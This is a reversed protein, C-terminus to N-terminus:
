TWFMKGFLNIECTILLSSSFPVFIFKTANGPLHVSTYFSSNLIRNERSRSGPPSTLICIYRLPDNLYYEKIKLKIGWITGVIIKWSSVMKNLIWAFFPIHPGGCRNAVWNYSGGVAVQLGEDISEWAHTQRFLFVVHAAGPLFFFYLTYILLEIQTM